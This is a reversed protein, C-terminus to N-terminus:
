IASNRSVGSGSTLPSVCSLHFAREVESASTRDHDHDVFVNGGVIQGHAHANIVAAAIREPHAQQANSYFDFIWADPPAPLRRGALQAVLAAADPFPQKLPPPAPNLSMEVDLKVNPDAARVAARITNCDDIM